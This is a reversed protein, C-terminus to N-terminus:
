FVIKRERRCKKERKFRFNNKNMTLVITECKEIPFIKKSLFFFFIEREVSVLNEKLIFFINGWEEFKVLVIKLISLFYKDYLYM